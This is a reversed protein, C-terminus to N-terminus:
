ADGAVPWPANIIQIAELYAAVYAPTPAVFTLERQKDGPWWSPLPGDAPPPAPPRFVAPPIPCLPATRIKPM